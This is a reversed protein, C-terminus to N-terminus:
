GYFNMTTVMRMGSDSSTPMQRGTQHRMAAAASATDASRVDCYIFTGAVIINRPITFMLGSHVGHRRTCFRAVTSQIQSSLGASLNM